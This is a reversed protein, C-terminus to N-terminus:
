SIKKRWRKKPEPTIVEEVPTEIVDEIEDEVINDVPKEIIEEKKVEEIEPLWNKFMAKFTQENVWLEWLRPKYQVRKKKLANLDNFDNVFDIINEGNDDYIPYKKLDFFEMVVQEPTRGGNYYNIVKQTEPNLWTLGITKTTAVM